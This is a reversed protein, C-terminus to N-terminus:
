RCNAQLDGFDVISQLRNNLFFSRLPKGYGTQMWKNPMIYCFHGSPKLMEFGKEVFFVYLDSASSLFNGKGM